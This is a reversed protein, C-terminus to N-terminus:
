LLVCTVILEIADGSSEGTCSDFREKSFSVARIGWRKPSQEGSAVAGECGVRDAMHGFAQWGGRM